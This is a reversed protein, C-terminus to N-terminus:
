IYVTTYLILYNSYYGILSSSADARQWTKAGKGHIQVLGRSKGNSTEEGGRCSFRRIMSKSIRLRSALESTASHASKSWNVKTRTVIAADIGIRLRGILTTGPLSSLSFAISSSPIHSDIRLEKTRAAVCGLGNREDNTREKLM